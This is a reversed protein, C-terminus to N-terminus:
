WYLKSGPTIQNGEGGARTIITAFLLIPINENVFRLSGDGLVVNAGGPHFSYVEGTPDTGYTADGYGSKPEAVSDTVLAGNVRNVGFLPPGGAVPGIVTGDSRQARVLIESAPRGWGGGNVHRPYGETTATYTTADVTLKGRM